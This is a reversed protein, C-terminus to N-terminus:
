NVDYNMISYYCLLIMVIPMFISGIWQSRYDSNRSTQTSRSHFQDMVFCFVSYNVGDCPESYQGM